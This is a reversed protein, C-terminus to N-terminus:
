QEERRTHPSLARVHAAGLLLERGAEGLGYFFDSGAALGVDREALSLERSSAGSSAAASKRAVPSKSGAM